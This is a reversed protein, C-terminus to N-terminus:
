PTSTPDADDAPALCAAAADTDIPFWGDDSTQEAMRGDDFLVTLRYKDDEYFQVIKPKTM